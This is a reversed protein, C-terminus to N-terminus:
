DLDANGDQLHLVMTKPVDLGDAIAYLVILESDSIAGEARAVVSLDRILQMRQTISARSKVAEIRKPLASILKDVNLADPSFGDGMFEKLVSKESESIGDRANAVAVAGAIFLARMTKGVETHGELYDPEMLGMLSQVGMELEAKEVGDELM